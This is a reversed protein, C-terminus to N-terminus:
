EEVSLYARLAEQWSRMKIKRSLLAESASRRPGTSIFDAMKAPVLKSNSKLFSIAEQMVEAASAAGTNVINFTGYTDNRILSTIEKIFDDLYTPSGFQNTTATIAEGKKIAILMHDIMGAKTTKGGFLWGTRAIIHKTSAHRVLIEAMYKTQGYINLPDPEDDESFMKKSEGNFIAGTSIFIFPINRENAIQAAYYAGLVNVKYALFPNKECLRIDISALCLIGSPSLQECKQQIAQKNTVDLDQHSLKIGFPIAQGIRSQAGTILIKSLDAM